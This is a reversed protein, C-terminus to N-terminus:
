SANREGPAREILASVREDGVRKGVRQPVSSLRGASMLVVRGTRDEEARRDGAEANGECDTQIQLRVKLPKEHNMALRAM